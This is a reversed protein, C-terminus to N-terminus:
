CKITGLVEVRRKITREFARQWMEQREIYEYAGGPDNQYGARGDYWDHCRSCLHATFIDLSKKGMGKGHVGLNSHASVVGHFSGCNTCQQDRADSLLKKSM